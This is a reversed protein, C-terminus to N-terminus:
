NRISDALPIIFSVKIIYEDMRWVYLSRCAPICAYVYAYMHVCALMHIDLTYMCIYMDASMCVDTCKYAQRGVHTHLIHRDILSLAVIPVLNFYQKSM